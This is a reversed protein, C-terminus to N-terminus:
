SLISITLLFMDKSIKRKLISIAETKQNYVTSQSKNLQLAIDKMESGEMYLKLVKGCEEPLTDIMLSLKSIVEVEVMESIFYDQDQILSQTYKDVNKKHEIYKRFHNRISLFLYNKIHALSCFDDKKNEWIGLFIDQIMDAADVETNRYLKVSFHYLHDYYLTFIFAYASKDRRNFGKVLIKQNVESNTDFKGNLM